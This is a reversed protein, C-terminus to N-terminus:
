WAWGATGIPAPPTLPTSARRDRGGELGRAPPLVADRRTLARRLAAVGGTATATRSWTSSRRACRRWGSAAPSSWWTVVRPRQSRGPESGFPGRVGLQEGPEAACIARTAAGVARVTHVCREMETSTASPSRCRAQASRTSCRHVSGAGFDGVGDGDAARLELTWTDGLEQRKATVRYATPLMPGARVRGARLRRPAPLPDGASPRRDGARLAADARLRAGPGARVQRAPLRRRLLHRANGDAGPRRPPGPLSAVLWSWGLLDGDDITEVILGGRQPVFTEMAVRGRRIVYFSDAPDGERM